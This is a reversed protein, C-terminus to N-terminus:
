SFDWNKNKVFISKYNKGAIDIIEEIDELILEMGYEEDVIISKNENVLRAILFAASLIQAYATRLIDDNSYLIALHIAEFEEGNHFFSTWDYLSKISADRLDYHRNLVREILGIFSLELVEHSTHIIHDVSNNYRNGINPIGSDGGTHSFHERLLKEIDTVPEWYCSQPNEILAISEHAIMKLDNTPVSKRVFEWEEFLSNLGPVAPKVIITFGGLM